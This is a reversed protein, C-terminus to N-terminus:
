NREAKVMEIYEEYSVRLGDKTIVYSKTTVNTTTNTMILEEMFNSKLKNTILRRNKEYSLTYIERSLCLFFLVWISDSEKTFTNKISKKVEKAKTTVATRVEPVM